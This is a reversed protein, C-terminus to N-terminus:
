KVYKGSVGFDVKRYINELQEDPICAYRHTTQVSVHGFERQLVDVGVGNRWAQYAYTKRLSHTGISGKIGAENAAVTIVHWLHQRSLSKLKGGSGKKQSLVLPTESTWNKMNKIHSHLEQRMKDTMFIHREKGTKIEVVMLRDIIQIRSGSGALVDGVQLALIDSCRLGWNIGILAAIYYTKNWNKLCRLFSHIEPQTRIPITKEIKIM